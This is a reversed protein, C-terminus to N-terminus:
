GGDQHLRYLHEFQWNKKFRIKGQRTSILLSQSESKDKIHPVFELPEVTQWLPIEEEQRAM